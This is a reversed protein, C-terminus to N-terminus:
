INKELKLIEFYPNGSIKLLKCFAPETKMGIQKLEIIKNKFNEGYENLIKEELILHRYALQNTTQTKQSFIELHFGSLDFNITITEEGYEKSNTISFNKQHCFKSTIDEIFSAHNNYCCILDVDSTQTNIQLPISGVLKPDYKELKKIIKKNVLIKYIEKQILNGKKLYEINSFDKM